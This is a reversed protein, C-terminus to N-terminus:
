PSSSTASALSTPDNDNATPIPHSDLSEKRGTCAQISPPKSVLSLLPIRVINDDLLINILLRLIPQKVVRPQQPLPLHDHPRNLLVRDRRQLHPILTLILHKQDPFLALARPPLNIDSACASIHPGRSGNGITPYPIREGQVIENRASRPLSVSVIISRCLRWTMFHNIPTRLSHLGQGDVWGTAPKYTCHHVSRESGYFNIICTNTICKCLPPSGSNKQM